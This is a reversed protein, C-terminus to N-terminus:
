TSDPRIRGCSLTIRITRKRGRLSAIAEGLDDSLGEQSADRSAETAQQNRLTAEEAAM